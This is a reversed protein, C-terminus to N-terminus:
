FKKSVVVVVVVVAVVFSVWLKGSVSAEKITVGPDAEM